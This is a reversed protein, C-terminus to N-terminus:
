KLDRRKLLRKYSVQNKLMRGVVQKLQSFKIGTGPKKLTLDEKKLIYGKPKTSKLALSKTFVSKLKKQEYNLIKKNYGPKNLFNYDKRFDCISKLQDITISSSNDPNFRDENIKVHVEIIDAGKVISAIAPSISNSHISIGIPCKFKKKWKDILNIGIEEFKNPYSTHCQLITFNKRRKKLLNIIKGIEQYTSLGTSIIIPLNSKISEDILDKSFFEGSGIKIAQVNVKKLLNLGELSFPSSIFFKNKKKVYESIKKWSNFSFEVSKWYDFRNRYKKKINKISRFPEDLTSEANAIHTQFKIADVETGSIKDIIKILKKFSGHHSQGVEAILFPSNKIKMKVFKNLLQVSFSCDVM